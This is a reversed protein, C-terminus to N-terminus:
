LRFVLARAVTSAFWAWDEEIGNSVSAGGESECVGDFRPLLKASSAIGSLLWRMQGVNTFM